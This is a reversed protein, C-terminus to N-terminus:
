FVLQPEISLVYLISTHDGPCGGYAPPTVSHQHNSCSGPPTWLGPWPASSPNEDVGGSAADYDRSGRCLAADTRSLCRRCWRFPLQKRRSHHQAAASSFMRDAPEQASGCAAERGGREEDLPVYIFYQVRPVRLSTAGDASTSSSAICRAQGCVPRM